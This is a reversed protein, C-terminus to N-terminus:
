AAPAHSRWGSSLFSGIAGGLLGCALAILSFLAGGLFFGGVRDWDPNVRKVDAFWYSTAIWWMALMVMGGIHATAAVLAGSSVAKTRASSYMGALVYLSVTAAMFIQETHGGFTPFRATIVVDRAIFTTAIALAWPWTARSLLGVVRAIYWANARVRGGARLVRERYEEFFTALVSERAEHKVLVGLLWQLEEPPFESRMQLASVVAAVLAIAVCIGLMLTLVSIVLLILTM